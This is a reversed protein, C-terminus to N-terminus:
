QQKGWCKYYLLIKKFYPIDNYGVQMAAEELSIGNNILKKAQLLRAEQKMQTFTKDYHKKLFRLLQRRSLNLDNSLQTETVSTYNHRFTHEIIQIRQNDSILLEDSIVSKGNEYSRVLNILLLSLINNIASACGIKQENIEDALASFCYKLIPSVTGIWFYTNQLLESISTNDKNKQKSINFGLCYESMSDFKDNLQTHNIQPGTIFITGKSLAYESNEVILTGKGGCILHLEYYYKSHRHEEADCSFTDSHFDIVNIKLNEFNINIYTNGLNVKKYMYIKEGQIIFLEIMNIQFFCSLHSMSQFHHRLPM